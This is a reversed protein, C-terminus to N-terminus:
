WPSSFFGSLWRRQQVQVQLREQEIIDRPSHNIKPLRDSKLYIEGKPSRIELFHNELEALAEEEKEGQENNNPKKVKKQLFDSHKTSSFSFRESEWIELKRVNDIIIWLNESSERFLKQKWVRGEKGM